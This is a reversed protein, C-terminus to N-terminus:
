GEVNARVESFARVHRSTCAGRLPPLMGPVSRAVAHPVPCTSVSSWILVTHSKLTRALLSVFQTAVNSVCGAYYTTCPRHLPRYDTRGDTGDISAVKRDAPGIEAVSEIACCCCSQRLGPAPSLYRHIDAPVRVAAASLRPEQSLM